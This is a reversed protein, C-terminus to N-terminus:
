YYTIRRVRYSFPIEGAFGWKSIWHNYENMSDIEFSERIVITGDAEVVEVQEENGNEDVKFHITRMLEGDANKISKQLLHENSDYVFEEIRLLEKTQADFAKSQVKLGDDYKFDYFSLINDDADVYKAGVPQPNEDSFLSMSKAKLSGDLNYFLHGEQMGKENYKYSEMYTITDKVYEGDVNKVTWREEEISKITPPQKETCATLLLAFFITTTFLHKM